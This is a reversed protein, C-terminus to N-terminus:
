VEEMRNALARTAALRAAVTSSFMAESRDLVVGGFRRIEWHFQLTCDGHRVVFIEPVDSGMAARVERKRERALRAAARAADTFHRRKSQASPM